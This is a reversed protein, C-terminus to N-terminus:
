QERGAPVFLVQLDSRSDLVYLPETKSASNLLALSASALPEMRAPQFDLALSAVPEHSAIDISEISRTKASAVLLTQRAVQLGVPENIQAFTEASAAGAYDAIRLVSGSAFDAIFADRSAVAVASPDALDALRDTGSKTVRYLGGKAAILVREGDFFVSSPASDVGVVDFKESVDASKDASRWISVSHNSVAALDHGSWAFVSGPEVQGLNISVPAPSDFGRTLEVASGRLAVAMTADKSAAAADADKILAEGLYASGVFGRIPLLERTSPDYVFGPTPGSLQAFAPIALALVSLIRM